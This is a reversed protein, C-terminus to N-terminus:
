TSGAAVERVIFKRASTALADDEQDLNVERLLRGRIEVLRDSSIEALDDVLLEADVILTKFPASRRFREYDTGRRVWSGPVHEVTDETEEFIARILPDSSDPWSDHFEEVSLDGSM